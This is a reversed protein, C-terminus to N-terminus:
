RGFGDKKVRVTIERERPDVFNALAFVAGYGLAGLLLLVLLLRTLTPM